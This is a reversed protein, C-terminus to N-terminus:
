KFARSTGLVRGSAGLARLEFVGYSGKVSVATEFGAKAASAVPKLRAASSGALVQWRTVETAGNWSAYVTTRTGSRRAAGSPPYDPTGVWTFTFLARYSLDKGPWRANLVQRGSGSAESFYPLSGWGLVAGGSPLLQMSGLFGVDLGPHHPFARILSASHRALNVRLVMGRSPGNPAAFGRSTIRCCSDDFLTLETPSILQVDHQWAFRAGPAFKFSSHKGGLTWVIKGTTTDILYAAWTNRMSVLIQNSAVVQISNVHYADWAGGPATAV